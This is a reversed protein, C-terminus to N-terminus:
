AGGLSPAVRPLAVPARSGWGPGLPTQSSGAGGSLLRPPPEPAGHIPVMTEGAVQARPAALVPRWSRAVSRTGPQASRRRCPGEPEGARRGGKAAGPRARRACGRLPRAGRPQAWGPYPTGALRAPLCASGKVLRGPDRVGSGVGRLGAGACPCGRSKGDAGPRARAGPPAALPQPPRGRRGHRAAPDRLVPAWTWARVPGYLSRSRRRQSSESPCAPRGSYAAPRSPAPAVPDTVQSRPPLLAPPPRGAGQAWSRGAGERRWRGGEANRPAAPACSQSRPGTERPPPAPGDSTGRWGSRWPGAGEGQGAARARDSSGDEAVEAPSGRGPDTREGGPGLGGLALRLDQLGHLLPGWGSAWNWLGDTRKRTFVWALGEQILWGRFVGM